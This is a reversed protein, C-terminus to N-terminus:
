KQVETDIEYSLRDSIGDKGNASIMITENKMGFRRIYDYAINTAMTLDSSCGTTVMDKGYILEEAQRGGLAVDILAIM